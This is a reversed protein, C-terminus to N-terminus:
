FEQSNKLKKMFSEYIEEQEADDNESSNVTEERPRKLQGESNLTIETIPRKLLSEDTIM